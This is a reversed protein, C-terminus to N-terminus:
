ICESFMGVMEVVEVRTLKLVPKPQMIEWYDLYIQLDFHRKIINDINM